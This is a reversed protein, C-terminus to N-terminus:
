TTDTNEFLGFIKLKHRSAFIELLESFLRRQSINAQKMDTHMNTKARGGRAGPSTALGRDM